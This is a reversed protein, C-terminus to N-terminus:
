GKTGEQRPKEADVVECRLGGEETIDFVVRICEGDGHRVANAVLETLLLDLANGPLAPLDMEVATVTVNPAVLQPSPQFGETYGSPVLNAIRM